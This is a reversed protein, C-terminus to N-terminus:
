QYRLAIMPDVAAARRAPVLCALMAAAALVAAITVLILPDYPSVRFLLITAASGLAVGLGAGLAIGSVIQWLGQRMVMVLVDRAAAGMAMRIGIEQTRRSVSFAMVGYLGVTALFLAAAGFAMFLTGFVRFPWTGQEFGEQVTAINFLPLNVDLSSVAARAPASLNLPAGSVHALLTVGSPPMQPLPLYIAERTRDGPSQGVGLDPVVGVVERWEQHDGTAIALTRGLAGDPFYRRALAENVIVTPAGTDRDRDDFGRGEVLAV